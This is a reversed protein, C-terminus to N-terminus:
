AKDPMIMNLVLRGGDVYITQGTIYSADSSALFVAVGAMEEPEAMRRMPTRMEIRKRRPTGPGADTMMSTRTGGPGIAVVRINHDALEVALVRTLATVAGKSLPYCGEGVEGLIAVISAINIIVGGKKAAIMRKAAARCTLHPGKINVAMVHDFTKESVDLISGSDVVGANAICVDLGGFASVADDMLADVDAAKTVDCRVYRANGGLAKALAAGEKDLLDGFVVKAGEAVYRRVYAEGIGRAGGTIVAVKNKLRM